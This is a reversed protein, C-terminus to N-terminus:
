PTAVSTIVLGYAPTVGDPSAIYLFLLGTNGAPNTWAGVDGQDTEEMTGEGNWGLQGMQTDYYTFSDEFNSAAPLEFADYAYKKFGAEQATAAAADNFAPTAATPKAGTLPAPKPVVTSVDADTLDLTEDITGDSGRDIGLPLSAKDGTWKGYNVIATDAPGLTIDDHFFTQVSKDDYRDMLLGYTGSSKTGASNISMQAKTSDLAVNITGGGVTDVGKVLFDYDVNSKADSIAANINPSESNDTKYSLKSGDAAITLTDKQGPKLNVDSVGIDYGPGVMSIDATGPDKLLTGDLTVTLNLNAPVYYVPEETENWTEKGSKPTDATANPIENVFKGDPTYGLRKGNQDTILLHIPTKPSRDLFITNQQAALQAMGRTRGDQACYPCAYAFQKGTPSIPTLELPKTSANGYYLESAVSPNIAASYAWKNNPKDILMARAQKPWNNDWLLVAYIGGGLDEVAYPTVEHGGSGDAKYFGLSYVDTSSTKFLEIMKDVMDAPGLKIIAPKVVPSFQQVFSFAIERQFKDNGDLAIASPASASFDSINSMNKYLRLALISFGFCHGGAMGKNWQDMVEQIQPQLTCKGGATNACAQDGFVRRMEDPTLNTYPGSGYNPFPFGNVDPRFGTDAVYTGSTAFTGDDKLKGKSDISNAVLAAESDIRKGASGSLTYLLVGGQQTVGFVAYGMKTDPNLFVAIPVNPELDSVKAPNKWGLAAIQDSYYKLLDNWAGGPVAIVEYGYQEFGQRPAIQKMLDDFNQAPPQVAAGAPPPVKPAGDPAQAAISGAFMVSVLMVISLILLMRFVNRATPRSM